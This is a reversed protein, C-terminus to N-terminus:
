PKIDCVVKEEVKMTKLIKFVNSSLGGNEEDVM